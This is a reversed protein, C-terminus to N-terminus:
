GNPNVDPDMLSLSSPQYLGWEETLEANSLLNVPKRARLRGYLGSSRDMTDLWARGKVVEELAQTYFCTALVADCWPAMDIAFQQACHNIFTRTLIASDTRSTATISSSQLYSERTENSNYQIFVILNLFADKVSKLVGGNEIARYLKPVGSRCGAEYVIAVIGQKNLPLPTSKLEEGPYKARFSLIGIHVRDVEEKPGVIYLKTNLHGLM